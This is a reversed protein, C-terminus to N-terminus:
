GVELGELHVKILSFLLMVALVHGRRDGEACLFEVGVESEEDM